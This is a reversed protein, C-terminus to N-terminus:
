RCTLAATVLRCCEFNPMVIAVLLLCETCMDARSFRLREMTWCCSCAHPVGQGPHIRLRGECRDGMLPGVDLLM